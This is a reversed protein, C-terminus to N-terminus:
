QIRVNITVSFTQTGPKLVLDVTQASTEVPRNYRKFFNHLASTGARIGFEALLRESAAKYTMGIGDAGGTSLWAALQQKVHLPLKDLPSRIFAKRM